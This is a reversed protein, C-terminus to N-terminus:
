TMYEVVILHLYINERYVEKQTYPWLKVMILTAATSKTAPLNTSSLISFKYCSAFVLFYSNSCLHSSPALIM